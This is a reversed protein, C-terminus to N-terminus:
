MRITRDLHTIRAELLAAAKDLVYDGRHDMEYDAEEGESTEDDGEGQESEEQQRGEPDSNEQESGEQDIEEIDWEAPAIDAERFYKGDKWLTGDTTKLQYRWTPSFLQKSAASVTFHKTRVVNRNEVIRMKVKTGIQFRKTSGQESEEREAEEREGEEESNGATYEVEAKRKDQEGEELGIDKQVVDGQDGMVDDTGEDNIEGSDNNDQEDNERAARIERELVWGGRDFLVGDSMKLQYYWMNKTDQVAAAVKLPRTQPSVVRFMVKDGEQFPRAFGEEIDELSGYRVEGEDQDGEEKTMGDHVVVERTEKVAKEVRSGCCDGIYSRHGSGDEANKIRDLLLKATTRLQPADVLMSQVWALVVDDTSGIRPNLSATAFHWLLDDLSILRPSMEGNGKLIAAMEFFVMGLSWIDSEANEFYGEHIEPARYRYIKARYEKSTGIKLPDFKLGFDSFLVNGNCLLINEPKINKHQIRRRHLFDLAEALCGFFTRLKIANSSHYRELYTTLNTDAFPAMILGICDPTSYHGVLTRLHPHHLTRLSGLDAILDIEGPKLASMNPDSARVMRKIAYLRLSTTSKARYVQGIPGSDIRQEIKFPVDEAAKFHCHRGEAGKELYLSKTEVLKQTILFEWRAKAPLRQPLRKDDFPFEIDSLGSHFFDDFYEICGISRLVIYTRPRRSWELNVDNLLQSIRAIQDDSYAKSRDMGDMFYIKLQAAAKNADSSSLPVPLLNKARSISSVLRECDITDENEAGWFSSMQECCQRSLTDAEMLLHQNYLMLAVRYKSRLTWISVDEDKLMGEYGVLIQRYMKEAHTFMARTEFLDALQRMNEITHARSPGMSWDCRELAIEFLQGAAQYEGRKRLLVGLRNCREVYEPSSDPTNSLARRAAAVAEQLDEQKHAHEFRQQLKRILDDLWKVHNPHNVPMSSLEQRAADIATDLEKSPLLEAATAGAAPEPPDSPDNPLTKHNNEKEDRLDGTTDHHRTRNDQYSVPGTPVPHLFRNPDTQDSTAHSHPQSSTHHSTEVGTSDDNTYDVGGFILDPRVPLSDPKHGGLVPIRNPAPLDATSPDERGGFVLIPRAPLDDPNAGGIKTAARPLPSQASSAEQWDDEFNEGLISGDSTSEISTHIYSKGDSFALPSLDSSPQRVRSDEEIAANSDISGVDSGTPIAFLALQELHSALHRKFVAPDVLITHNLSDSTQIACGEREVLRDVWESCCPCDQARIQGLPRRAMDLVQQEESGDRIEPHEKQVHAIYREGLEFRKDNCLHCRYEIRHCQLEHRFWDNMDNFYSSDCSPFTCVYTRLDSFVHQKWARESKFKKVQYCFPCEFEKKSDTRLDDLKPIRSIASSDLDGAVSRSITTYSRAVSGADSDDEAILMQSTIRGPVLSSAKTFFTSPRSSSDPQTAVIPRLEQLYQPEQTIAQPLRDDQHKGELKKHHDDIYRLYRRRQTIARGLRTRLWANGTTALKPFKEGVHGIDYQDSFHYRGRSLAKAFPDTPGAQRVLSTVRFLRTVCDGIEELLGTAEDLPSEVATDPSASVVEGEREGSVIALLQEAVEALDELLQSVFELVDPAEQLRSELSLPSDPGHTSGINGVWLSFRELEDVVQKKDVQSEQSASSALFSAISQLSSLSNRSQDSVSAAMKLSDARAENRRVDELSM